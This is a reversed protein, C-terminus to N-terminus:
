SKEPASFDGITKYVHCFGTTGSFLVVAGVVDLLIGWWARRGASLGVGILAVGLFGRVIREGPGVNVKM